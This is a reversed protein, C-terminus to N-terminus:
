GTVTALEAQITFSMFPKVDDHICFIDQKKFKSKPSPAAHCGREAGPHKHATCATIVHRM